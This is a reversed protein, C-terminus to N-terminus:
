KSAPFKPNGSLCLEIHKDAEAQSDLNRFSVALLHNARYAARWDANLTGTITKLVKVAEEFNSESVLLKGYELAIKQDPRYRWNQVIEVAYKGNSGEPLWDSQVKVGEVDSSSLYNNIKSLQANLEVSEQLCVTKYIPELLSRPLVEAELGKEYEQIWADEDADLTQKGEDKLIGTMCVGGLPRKDQWVDARYTEPDAVMDVDQFGLMRLNMVLSEASPVNVITTHAASGDHYASEYKQATVGCIEDEFQYVLDRMEIETKLEETIYKSSICRSEIFVFKNCVNRINRLATPISEVHYLVGCCIVIDFKEDGLTEITGVRYDVNNELKLIERVTEGKKINKERPEVGVMKAFPLDSLQHLVWGDNCGIDLISMTKLEDMTFTKLISERIKKIFYESRGALGEENGVSVDGSKWIAMSYPGNANLLEIQESTLQSGDHLLMNNGKEFFVM